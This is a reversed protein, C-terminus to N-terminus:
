GGAAAFEDYEYIAPVAHRVALAAFQETASVFFPDPAIVLANAELNRLRAFVMDIDRETRAELVVLQVGLARAAAPMDKAVTDRNANVSNILLAIRTAMPVVEHLLELKKPGLEVSLNTIGTINGGPRSLSAILGLEVPDVGAEFVIPITTTAAKAALAAPIGGLAAIVSVQRGVLDAALAPLRDYQGEALRYEIAVNRGEVYGAENLGRRFAAMQRQRVAGAFSSSHLLGIVPLTGQARQQARVVVPWAVASGLGAIFERRRM